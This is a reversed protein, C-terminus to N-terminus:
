YVSRLKDHHYLWGGATRRLFVGGKKQTGQEDKGEVDVEAWDGKTRGGTVKLAPLSLSDGAMMSILYWFGDDSGEAATSFVDSQSDLCAQAAARDKAQVAKRCAILARAPDGGDAPLPTGAVKVLPLDFVLDIAPGEGDMYDAAAVRLTGKLVGNELKVQSRAASKSDSCWGCNNGSGLNYTMGGTWSGEPTFELDATHGARLTQVAGEVDMTDSLAKADLPQASLAVRVVMEDGFEAKREYAVGDVVPLTRGQNTFTGKVGAFAPMSAVLSVAAVTMARMM